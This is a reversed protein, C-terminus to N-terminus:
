LSTSVSYVAWAPAPALWRIHQMQCAFLASAMSKSFSPMLGQAGHIASLAGQLLIPLERLPRRAHHHKSLVAPGAQVRRLKPM